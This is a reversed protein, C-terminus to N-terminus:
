ARSSIVKASFFIPSPTGKALSVISTACSSIRRSFQSALTAATRACAYNPVRKDLWMSAEINRARHEQSFGRGYVNCTGISVFFRKTYEPGHHIVLIVISSGRSSSDQFIFYM